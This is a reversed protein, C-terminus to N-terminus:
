RYLFLLGANAENFKIAMARGSGHLLLVMEWYLSERQAAALARQASAAAM